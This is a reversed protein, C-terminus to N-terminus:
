PRLTYRCLLLDGEKGGGDGLIDGPEIRMGIGIGDEGGGAARARM